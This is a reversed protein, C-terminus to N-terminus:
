NNTRAKPMRLDTNLNEAEIKLLEKKRKKGLPTGKTRLDISIEDLVLFNPSLLDLFNFLPVYAKNKQNIIKINVNNCSVILFIPIQQCRFHQQLSGYIRLLFEEKSTKMCSMM